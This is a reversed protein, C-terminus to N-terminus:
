YTTYTREHHETYRGVLAEYWKTTNTAAETYDYGNKCSITIYQHNTDWEVLPSDPSTQLIHDWSKLVEGVYACPQVQSFEPVEAPNVMTPVSNNCVALLCAVAIIKKMYRM